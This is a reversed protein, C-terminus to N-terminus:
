RLIIIRQENLFHIVKDVGEELTCQDTEVILDPAEPEEFPASIGTM